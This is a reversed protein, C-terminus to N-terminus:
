HIMQFKHYLIFHKWDTKIFYYVLFLLLIEALIFPWSLFSLPTLSKILISKSIENATYVWFSYTFIRAVIFPIIAYRLKMGTLGYAIFLQDSPLPTFAEIFFVISVYHPRKELHKKLNDLNTRYKKSLFHNRLIHKSSLTLVFRGLTSACLAIFVFLPLSPISYNFSIFSLVAWTPPGFIPIINLLFIILFSYIFINIVM